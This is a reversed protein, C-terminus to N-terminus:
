LANLAAATLTTTIPFYKAAGVLEVVVKESDGNGLGSLIQGKLELPKPIESNDNSTVDYDRGFCVITGSTYEIFATIGCAARLGNLNDIKEPTIGNLNFFLTLEVNERINAQVANAFATNDNTFTWTFMKNSAGLTVASWEAKTALETCVFASIDLNDVLWVTKIGGTLTSCGASGAQSIDTIRAM